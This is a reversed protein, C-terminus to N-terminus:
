TNGFVSKFVILEFIKPIKNSIPSPENRHLYSYALLKQFIKLFRTKEKLFNLLALEWWHSWCSAARNAAQEQM